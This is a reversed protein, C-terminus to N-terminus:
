PVLRTIGMGTEIDPLTSAKGSLKKFIAKRPTDWANKGTNYVGGLKTFVNASPDPQPFYFQNEGEGFRAKGSPNNYHDNTPLVYGKSRSGAAEGIESGYFIADIPVTSAKVKTGKFVAIGDADANLGKSDANGLIGNNANGFGDGLIKKTRANSAIVRIWNAASIDASKGKSHSGAIVKSPSGVYIFTGKKASGATLDFKFTTKGGQTWGYATAGRNHYNNATVVSYPTRSFDIDETVMLQIYEYGGDHTYQVNGKKYVTGAIPNDTGWPNSMYGTIILQARGSLSFLLGMGLGMLGGLLRINKLGWHLQGGPVQKPMRQSAMRAPLWNLKYQIDTRNM